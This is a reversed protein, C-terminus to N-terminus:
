YTKIKENVLNVFAKVIAIHKLVNDPHENEPDEIKQEKQNVGKFLKQEYTKFSRIDVKFDTGPFTLYTLQQPKHRSSRQM